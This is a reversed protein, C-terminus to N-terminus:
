EYRLVQIPRIRSAALGPLASVAAVGLLAVACVQVLSAIALHFSLDFLQASTIRVLLRALPYGAAVGLLLGITALVVGEVVLVLVAHRTAAGISRLIGFEQRREAISILLTNAIGAVGVVAVIVVMANLMTTLVSIARGAVQQDAHAAYTIPGHARTREELTTLIRDVDAPESPTLKLAFIDARNGLGRLRNADEVRLFLKGTATNGLYTSSDDVIGVIQVVQSRSGSDIVRRQGVRADIASALNSTLVAAPPNSATVWSGEILRYGYLPEGEPMGWIDTRTSGISGTASTWPEADLVGPERRIVSAFSLDVGREYYVWADAGYLAYLEDVTSSVSRSLAQTAVFAAVAVAVVIITAITRAPRRLANRMGLATAANLRGIPATLRSVLPRRFEARVGPSRLLTAVSANSKLLVPVISAASTVLTGVFVALAIERPAIRFDPQQLGTLGTLYASLARGVLLGSLWGVLTGAVGLAAGYLLYTMWVDRRRGGLSKIIGIQGTEESMVAALTNAVLISSLTAGLYSFVQLMVLVTGLERSGVFVSPDRVDFATTAIGRRALLRSIEGASQDALDPDDLRVLLFNDRSQQTMDRATRAPVYAIARNLLGAGLTAPSRTFGSVTLYTIPDAPSVRVAVVEGISVPTLNSVGDDFAIEGDEPFRGAVLEVVDLRMASFSDIGVLRLNEWDAGASFRTFVVTRTEVAAVNDQREVFDASTASM